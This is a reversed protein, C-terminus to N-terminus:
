PEDPKDTGGSFTSVDGGFHEAARHALGNLKAHLRKFAEDVVAKEASDLLSAIAAEVENVSARISAAKTIVVDRLAM